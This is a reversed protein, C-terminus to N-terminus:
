MDNSNQKSVDDTRDLVCRSSYSGQADVWYEIGREEDHILTPIAERDTDVWYVIGNDSHTYLALNDDAWVIM